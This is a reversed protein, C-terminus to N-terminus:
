PYDLERQHRFALVRVEDRAPLFRYLALYGSRGFSIVLERLDGTVIRGIMPHHELVEVATRIAEVAATAADPAAPVLFTFARELNALANGSYVVQAVTETSRGQCWERDPRAM